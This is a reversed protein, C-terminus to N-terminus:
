KLFVMKKTDAYDGARLSYFYIGSSTARGLASTGDWTFRYNGATLSSSILTTVEQGAINFVKLTTYAARPLSFAITTSPNFPNPYNQVLKFNRPIGNGDRVGSLIDTGVFDKGTLNAVVSDIQLSDPTFLYNDRAPVIWGSWGEPVTATYAGDADTMPNGPLGHMVVSDVGVEGTALIHGSITYTPVAVTSFPIDEGYATGVSNSAFARVHYQTGPTLNTLSGTYTGLGTGCALVLDDVTPNVTTSWCLGRDSVTNGGTATVRGSGLAKTAAISDPVITQVMPLGAYFSFQSGYAIGSSNQAYARVYYHQRPTLNNLDSVYVGLGSSDSSHSGAVTPSATIGWCVGRASVASGGDAVVDGGCTASTSDVVVLAATVVTPAPYVNVTVQAAPSEWNGTDKVLFEFNGRGVGIVGDDVTFIVRHNFDTVDTPAETIEDGRGEAVYQYLTGHAPLTTITATLPGFGGTGDLTILADSGLTTWVTQPNATPPASDSTTFERIESWTTGDDGHAFVAWYYTAGPDLTGPDPTISTELGLDLDIPDELTSNQSLLFEYNTTNDCPLWQITPTTSVVAQEAPSTLEPISPPNGVGLLIGDYLAASDIAYQSDGAPSFRIAQESTLPWEPPQAAGAVRKWNEAGCYYQAGASGDANELGITAYIGHAQDSTNDVIIRYQIQIENTTEYLTISFTGLLTPDGWFGMNTCQIVCKRNPAEGITQYYIVGGNEHVVMDNWFAAIYANPTNPGPICVNSYESWGSGDSIQLGASDFSIWGNSTAYFQTYTSDFYTFNFGIDFPGWSGDDMYQDYVINAQYLVEPPLSAASRARHRIGSSATPKPQAVPRSSVRAKTTRAALLQAEVLSHRGFPKVVTHSQGARLGASKVATAANLNTALGAILAISLCAPIAMTKVLNKM